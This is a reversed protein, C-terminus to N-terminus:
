WQSVLDGILSSLRGATGAVVETVLEHSVQEQTLGAGYNAIVAFVLVQMGLQRAVIVEHVVSMGVVHAGMIGLM